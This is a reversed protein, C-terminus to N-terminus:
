NNFFLINHINRLYDILDDFKPSDGYIMNQQMEQYDSRYREMLEDPPLFELNDHRLKDYVIGRVPTFIARHNCIQKFLGEDKFASEGYKSNAIQYIDYLHRSMRQYRIKAEPKKFEEHLLILKEFFTKEPIITRVNFPKESFEADGFNADILSGISRKEFPENLSRAGIEIQVRNPLYTEEEYLSKYNVHIIEPDQDSIETNPVIIEYTETEIGYEEFQKKLIDPMQNLSFEHSRRRLKRLQGKSLNGEFGFYERDIALDIDESFREILKYVKSLSTGGKFVIHENLESAFLVRLVLIVWADKEVAFPPLGTDAGAQTFLNLQQEKNLTLWNNM